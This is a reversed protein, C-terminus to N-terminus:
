IQNDVLLPSMFSHNPSFDADKDLQHHLFLQSHAVTMAPPTGDIM